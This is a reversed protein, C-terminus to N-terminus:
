MEHAGCVALQVDFDILLCSSFGKKKLRLESYILSNGGGMAPRAPKCFRSYFM